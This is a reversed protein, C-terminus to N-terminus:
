AKNHSFSHDYMERTFLSIFINIGFLVSFLIAPYLAYPMADVIIKLVPSNTTNLNVYKYILFIGWFLIVFILNYVLLTNAKIGGGKQKKNKHQPLIWEGAYRKHWDTKHWTNADRKDNHNSM